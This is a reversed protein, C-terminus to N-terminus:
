TLTKVKKDFYKSSAELIDWGAEQFITKCRDVTLGRGEETNQEIDRPNAGTEAWFLNARALAGLTCPGHTCNGVVSRSTTVRTVAVLMEVIETKMFSENNQSKKIIDAIVM